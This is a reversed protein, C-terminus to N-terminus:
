IIIEIVTSLKSVSGKTLGLLICQGVRIINGLKNKIRHPKQTLKEMNSIIKAYEFEFLAVNYRYM